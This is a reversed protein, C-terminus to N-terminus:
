REVIRIIDDLSYGITDVLYQIRNKNSENGGKFLLIESITQHIKSSIELEKNLLLDILHRDDM